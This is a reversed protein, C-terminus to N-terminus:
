LQPEADADIEPEADVRLELAKVVKQRADDGRSLEYRLCMEPDYGLTDVMEVVKGAETTDWKPFPALLADGAVEFVGQEVIRPDRGEALWERVVKITEADHVPDLECVGNNGFELVVGPVVRKTTPNIWEVDDSIIPLRGTKATIRVVALDERIKKSKSKSTAKAM